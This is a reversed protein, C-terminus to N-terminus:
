VENGKEDTYCVFHLNYHEQGSFDCDAELCEVPYVVGSDCAEMAGHELNSKKCKPCEGQM